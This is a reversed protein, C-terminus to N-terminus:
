FDLCLRPDSAYKQNEYYKNTYTISYDMEEGDIDGQRVAAAVVKFDM